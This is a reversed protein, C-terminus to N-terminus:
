AAAGTEISGADAATAGIAGTADASALTREARASATIGDQASASAQRRGTSSGAAATHRAIPWFAMAAASAEWSFGSAILAALAEDATIRGSFPFAGSVSAALSEGLQASGSFPFASAFGALVTLAADVSGSWGAGFASAAAAAGFAPTGFRLEALKVQTTVATATNAPQAGDYVRLYGGNLSATQADCAANAQAASRHPNLAM